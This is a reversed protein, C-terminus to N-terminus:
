AGGKDRLADLQELARTIVAHAQDGNGPIWGRAEMLADYLLDREAELKLAENVASRYGLELDRWPPKNDVGHAQADTWVDGLLRRWAEAQLVLPHDAM